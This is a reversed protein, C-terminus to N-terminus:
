SLHDLLSVIRGKIFNHGRLPWILASLRGLVIERFMFCGSVCVSSKVTLSAHRAVKNLNGYGLRDIANRKWEPLPPDFHIFSKENSGQKLVGLPITCLVADCEIMQESETEDIM